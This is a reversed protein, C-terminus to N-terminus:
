QIRKNTKSNAFIYRLVAKNKDTATNANTSKQKKIFDDTHLTHGGESISTETKMIRIFNAQFINM